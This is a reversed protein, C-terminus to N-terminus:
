ANAREVLEQKILDVQNKFRDSWQWRHGRSEGRAAREAWKKLRAENMRRNLDKRDGESSRAWRNIAGKNGIPKRRQVELRDAETSKVNGKGLMYAHFCERCAISAREFRRFRIMRRTLCQKFGCKCQVWWLQTNNAEVPGLVTHAGFQLGTLNKEVIRRKRAEPNYAV